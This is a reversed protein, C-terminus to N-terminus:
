ASERTLVDTKFESFEKGSCMCYYFGQFTYYKDVLNINKGCENCFRNADEAAKNYKTRKSWGTSDVGTEKFSENCAYCMCDSEGMQYYQVNPPVRYGCYVCIRDDPETQYQQYWEEHGDSGEWGTYSSNTNGPKWPGLAGRVPSTNWSMNSYWIGHNWTGAWKNIIIHRGEADLFALKNGIGIAMEMINQFAEHYLLEPNKHLLPQLVKKVFLKTDSSEQCTNYTSCFESIIGNHAMAISGHNLVFPHTNEQDINGHTAWRFHVICPYERVDKLAKWFTEFNTLEHHVVLHGEIAAAFGMGDNNRIWCDRMDAYRLRQKEPKYIAVCM